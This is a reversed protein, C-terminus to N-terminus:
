RVRVEFRPDLAIKQFEALAGTSSDIRIDSGNQDSETDFWVMGKVAPFNKLEALVTSLTQVKQTPDAAYEHVGWESLMFPKNAHQTTVWTYFGPFKTSDTTRNLLDSLTGYHYGGPQSAVYADLGIWDVADDGPYLDYWWSQNYFKELGMYSVMFVANDVGNARMRQVTYRFMAAYDKATMGSGATAIVDNEPEHHINLFFPDQYTANIYASLRDIRADQTGAAVKAWTTGYAVKWNTMLLRPKGPENAMAIEAKTPFLQDGRHYTHYISSTRGSKQEWIRLAEDRPTDSFGGAAAGWLINCSPVLKADVTCTTPVPPTPEPSPVPVPVTTALTLRLQPENSGSEDSQFRAPDDAVPSKVAFSYTGNATVAGTVDFFVQRADAAPHVTAIEGQMSPRNTNTLTEEQWGTSPVPSLTVTGPLSGGTSTLVIRAQDIEAGAPLAAVDYKLYTVMTDGQYTGAVLKSSGGTNYSPRASSSYADDVPRVVVTGDAPV